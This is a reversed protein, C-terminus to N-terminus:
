VPQPNKLRAQYTPSSPQYAIWNKQRGSLFNAAMINLCKEPQLLAELPTMGYEKLYYKASFQAIGYDKTNTNVCYSNFGSEGKIVALMDDLLTYGANGKSAVTHLGHEMGVKRALDYMAKREELPGACWGYPHTAMVQELTPTPNVIPVTPHIQQEVIVPHSEPTTTALYDMLIKKLKELLLNLTDFNVM